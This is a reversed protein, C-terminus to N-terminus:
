AILNLGEKTSHQQQNSLVANSDDIKKEKNSNDKLEAKNKLNRDKNNGFQQSSTQLSLLKLGSTEMMQSLKGEAEALLSAASASEAVINIRTSADQINITINLKGLSKPTLSIELKEDGNIISKEIRDILKNGWDKSLMNLTELMKHNNESKFNFNSQNNNQNNSNTNTEFKQFTLENIKLSTEVHPSEKGNSVPKSSIDKFSDLKSIVNKKDNSM